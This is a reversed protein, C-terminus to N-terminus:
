KEELKIGKLKLLELSTDLAKGMALLVAGAPGMSVRDLDELEAQLKETLEQQKSM